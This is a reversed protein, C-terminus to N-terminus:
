LYGPILTTKSHLNGFNYFADLEAFYKRIKELYVHIM